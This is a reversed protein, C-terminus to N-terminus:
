GGGNAGYTNLFRNEDDVTGILVIESGPALVSDPTPNIEIGSPKRLAVISCGTSSRVASEAITKGVLADPAQVRFVNLGEALMLVDARRLVNFIANAGMSAYSMVFDAGARHLTMVNQELTARTIIQIDPRLRRCLITLYVNTDDDNTTIIVAPAERIGARELTDIAAADGQVVKGEPGVRLPNREVIVYDLKRHALSRGTALGVRGGGVIIVPASAVHYICFLENYRQLQEHSGALVLVTHPGIRTEAKPNEFRGREWVGVVTVGLMERLRSEALTQGILPTGAATAEGIFLEQFRGIVHARADGGITRHALSRGMMEHLRLVKSSGALKLIDEASDSDATTIIPIEPAIDRVTFAINTNILDNGTATVMAAQRVRVNEYAEPSDPAGVVVQYGQDHLELAQALDRTLIVYSQGYKKLKQILAETVPGLHTLIAHGRVNSSLQRPARAESQARLWPSYFFEIFTFPMLVLLFVMGSLLVIMAFVRGLDTHFVIDGFGLTSMVTLTWYMGTLWTHEQGERLMLVHFLVTFVLVLLFFLLLYQFLLSVNRKGARSQLYSLLHPVFSKM